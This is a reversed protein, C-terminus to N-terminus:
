PSIISTPTILNGLTIIVNFEAEEVEQTSIEQYTKKLETIIENRINEPVKKAFIILTKNTATSDANGTKIDEYGLTSLDRRGKEAQGPIQSGNLVQITIGKRQLIASETSVAPTPEIAPTEIPVATPFPSLVQAGQAVLTTDQRSQMYYVGVLVAILLGFISLLLPLTSKAAKKKPVSVYTPETSALQKPPELFNESQKITDMKQIITKAHDLTMTESIVDKGLSLPAVVLSITFGNKELFDKIYQYIDKNTAIIRKAKEIDFTKFSVHEFPVNNLFLKIQIELDEPKTIPIDKQFFITDSLIIIARSPIIKNSVIFNQILRILEDKNIIEMDQITTAPFDLHLIDPRDAAYYNIGSRKIYLVGKQKIAM